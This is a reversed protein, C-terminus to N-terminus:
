KTLYYVLKGITSDVNKVGYFDCKKCNELGDRKGKLLEQRVRGFNIGNWIEIINQNSVNGMPDSFYFDACCKNVTGDTTINFQTFPYQCFGRPSRSKQKKNPAHGGRSTLIENAKRRSVNFLFVKKNAISSPKKGSIIQEPNYYKPIVRERVNRIPEPLEASFDDNYFNISLENIGAIILEEAKEETLAKGNTLIQLWAKPLNNRTYKVFKPLQPFILPDNNVHYAIRGSFDIEKLEDIAKKFLNFSMFTDDRKDNKLSATCFPCTGNCRTRVEFFVTDFLPIQSGDINLSRIKPEYVTKNQLYKIISSPFYQIFFAIVNSFSKLKYKMKNKIITESSEQSAMSKFECVSM